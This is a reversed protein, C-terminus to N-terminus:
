KKAEGDKISDDTLNKPGKIIFYKGRLPALVMGDMSVIQTVKDLDTLVKVKQDKLGLRAVETEKLGLEEDQSLTKIFYLSGDVCSINGIDAQQSQYLTKSNKYGENMYLPVEIIRSGGKGSGRPFEGIILSSEYLCMELKNGSRSAKFVPLAKSDILSRILVAQEGKENVDTYVLDNPTPMVRKPVFFDNAASKIPVINQHGDTTRAVYINKEQPRYYSILRDNQHLAPDQGKGHLKPSSGGFDVTFIEHSKLHSLRDHFSEDKLIAIKKQAPGASLSYQTLKPGEMVVKNDYNTFVQLDGSRRQYYTYKGDQSIFRINDLAQKAKLVPPTQGKSAAAVALLLVGFKNGLRM